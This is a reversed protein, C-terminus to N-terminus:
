IFWPVRAKKYERIAKQTAESLGEESELAKELNDAAAITELKEKLKKKLFEIQQNMLMMTELAKEKDSLSKTDIKLEHDEHM